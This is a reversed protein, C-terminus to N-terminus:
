LKNRLNRLDRLIIKQEASAIIRKTKVFTDPNLSICDIGQEVLFETFEPYVSPGQGCISVFKGNEHAVKILQAIARKVGENREDFYGMRGLIDSDRDCGMTLQTLDNSGISFADCYKCFEDAMFINVPVEAMFYLKFDKGRRLGVSKMMDTIEEVEEITRVFPLMMNLNRLGMEDRVRKIAKLECMFAERYSESVYRSCGRWGIMPNDENPEYDAGGKMDHYENTKFDSTRLTIPRPYFARCVKSIGEALKDILEDARGDEIVACPHEGIYNTFLFESRMLGVGDCPLKAVEDAKTPMSMNVMVKTGTIPVYEGVVGATAAAQPADDKKKIIGKYVTGTTGDVTIEMGDTLIETANGTGVVCPTGLERSIIAAHCTMGGEDTVIAAARSMAPVMDPMTMETVLIDGEKITDLSMSEDYIVVKGTALGPSAGLGSTIIDEQNASASVTENTASNGTATIPRAQVIYARNDEICWEMDMPKEYHIEIQRGIEAIEQIRDDPIKQVKVMDEPMDQREVGGQPGRVYKWVQTSIRKKLISMNQKDIVYTDPTVEGGVIAMTKAGSNPDVTFMIGSFESNVMRQVVVALKVDTHSYGQKERYAIARATFLSSWCKRIKDFLDEEDKVNLYTEQQGAFSADPLDEATASSRVAVFGTKGNPFLLKYRSVIEDKLDAPIDYQEFLERINASAQALSDDSSRDIAELEKNVADFIKSSEVFYDYAVTTLVFAEPVPFGANTLEGLNAGKGGVFPVDEVHLENVDVIKKEM